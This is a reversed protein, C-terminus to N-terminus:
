PSLARHSALWRPVAKAAPQLAGVDGVGPILVVTCDPVAGLATRLASASAHDPGRGDEEQIAVLVSLRRDDQEGAAAPSLDKRIRRLADWRERCRDWAGAIGSSRAHPRLLRRAIRCDSARPAILFVGDIVERHQGLARLALSCGVSHAGLFLPLGPHERRAAAALVLLDEARRLPPAACENVDEDPLPLVFLVGTRAIAVVLPVYLNVDVGQGPAFVAVARPVAPAFTTCHLQRGDPM